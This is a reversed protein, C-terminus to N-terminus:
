ALLFSCYIVVGDDGVIAIAAEGPTPHSPVECEERQGEQTETREANDHPDTGGGTLKIMLAVANRKPRVCVCVCVCM